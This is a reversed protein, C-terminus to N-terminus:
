SGYVDIMRMFMAKTADPHQDLQQAIHDIQQDSPLRGKSMGMLDYTSIGVAELAQDDGARSQDLAKLLQTASESSLGHAYGFEEASILQMVSRDKLALYVSEVDRADFSLRQPHHHDLYREDRHSHPVYGSHIHKRSGRRCVDVSGCSEQDVGRYDVYYTCISRMRCTSRQPTNRQSPETRDQNSDSQSSTDEESILSGLAISSAIVAVVTAAETVEKKECGPLAFAVCLLWLVSLVWSSRANEISRYDVTM